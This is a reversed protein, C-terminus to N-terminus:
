IKGAIPNMLIEESFAQPSMELGAIVVKAIDAPMIFREKPLDIDGWSDTLVPGPLIATVRYGQEALEMRLNRSFGLMGFKAIGYSGGRPYANLSAVSCINIIVKANGKQLLPFVARTLYYASYLNSQLMEEFLGDAEEMLNGPQFSGANNILIGKISKNKGDLISNGDSTVSIYAANEIDILATATSGAAAQITANQLNMLMKDSLILPSTGVNVTGSLTIRILSTPNSARLNNIDNQFTAVSPSSFSVDVINETPKSIFNMVPKTFFNQATGVLPSLLIVLVIFRKM